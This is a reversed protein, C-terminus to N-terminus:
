AVATVNRRGLALFAAGRPAGKRLGAASISKVFGRSWFRFSCRPPSAALFQVSRLCVWPVVSGRKFILREKTLRRVTLSSKVRWAPMTAETARFLAPQGVRACHCTVMTVRAMAVRTRERGCPKRCLGYYLFYWLLWTMTSIWDVM